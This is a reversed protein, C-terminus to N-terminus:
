VIESPLPLYQPHLPVKTFTENFINCCPQVSPHRKKLTGFNIVNESLVTHLVSAICDVTKRDLSHLDLCISFISLIASYFSKKRDIRINFDGNTKTLNKTRSVIDDM